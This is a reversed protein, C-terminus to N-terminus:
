SCIFEEEELEPVLIHVGFRTYVFVCTRARARIFVLHEFAEVGEQWFVHYGRDKLEAVLHGRGGVDCCFPAKKSDDRPEGEFSQNFSMPLGNSGSVKSEVPVVLTRYFPSHNAPSPGMFRREFPM